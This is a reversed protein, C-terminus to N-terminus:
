PLLSNSTGCSTSRWGPSREGSALEIQRDVYAIGYRLLYLFRKKSLLSTLIRNTPTNYALNTIYEPSGKIPLCNRHTLVIREDEETLKDNGNKIVSVYLEPDAERFVNFFVKDRSTTAYFAGQIPVIREHDYEQNNSFVMLQTINIFRRFRKNKMRTEIRDKEALIGEANNPKKVEIFALPLGNVFCTIDPRFNDGSEKDECTFETTVHWENNDLNAFDVLKIGSISSLKAYFERGLDDNALIRIIDTLLAQAEQESVDPNIRRVSRMFVKTLINSDENYDDTDIHSLYKYGLRVLHLAAPVQVRTNENFKGEAM